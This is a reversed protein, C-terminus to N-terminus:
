DKKGPRAIPGSLLEDINVEIDKHGNCSLIATNTDKKIDTVRWTDGMYTFRAGLKLIRKQRM